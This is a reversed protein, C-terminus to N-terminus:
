MPPNPVVGTQREEEESNIIIRPTVMIMISQSDRGYGVNKFLRNVYPIKSLVPPGFENRGENMSKLGGMLVTGGDPVSVTTQVFLTTFKPQQIYQTFPIPQGQSGGEFIPTIFTTIPFLPVEASALSTLIPALNLRVFRRDASVVTQITLTLGARGGSGPVNSFGVNFPANNPVFVLQGNVTVVSVGTVFFQQDAVAITSTQGNFMTIKPANMVNTRRDGQAAEMFMYVQIDNLFAIGLGLGGDAGPSNPYNGFPPIAYQFSTSHIPIDLNNTFNGAPTLGAIVGKTSLTNTVGAPAFQQNFVQANIKNNNTKINLAFDLGIREFFTEALDIIRVEVAVELDQLRRLAELLDAVEQQVDATQNIVLAMGIPFYDITGPGGVESWSMPSVTNTILKILTDELTQKGAGPNAPSASMMNGGQPQGPTTSMSASGVPSGTSLAGAGAPATKSAAQFGQLSAQAELTKDLRFSNPLSYNDIPIVLDAVSYTKSILKGRAHRETTIQLVDDKIVHTLHVQHLLVNLASKLSVGDLKLTVPSNLPINEEQLAPTDIVINMGRTMVRLDEVVQSLTAGKFDLNIPKNLQMEIRKEADNRVKLSIGDRYMQSSRDRGRRYSDPDVLLPDKSTVAPGESDADNLGNLFMAERDKKIQSYKAQNGQIHAIHIAAGTAPDDPDLEHAKSAVMEAEHYKGEDFLTRYQAMLEKIQKRKTELAITDKTRDDVFKKKDKKEKDLFRAQAEMMKLSEIRKDIPKILLAMRSADLGAARIQAEMDNLQQFAEDIDGRQFKATADSQAKLSDSRLKQFKIEQLAQVQQALSPDNAAPANPTPVTPVGPVTQNTVGPNQQNFAVSQVTGVATKPHLQASANQMMSHLAAQKVPPLLSEDIQGFLAMAQDYKHQQYAILGTEYTKDATKVRSNHEDGELSRLVAAAEDKMGYPGNYVQVAIQRANETEGRQIELRAKALMEAGPNAAPAPPVVVVPTPQMVTPKVLPVAPMVEPGGPIVPMPPPNVAVATPAAPTRMATLTAMKAEIVQADLGLAVATERASTLKAAAMSLDAPTNKGMCVSADHLSADIQKKGDATLKMMAVDPGEEGPGFVAHLKQADILKARAEALRGQKQLEKADRIM